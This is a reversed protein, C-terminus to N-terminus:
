LIINMFTKPDEIMFNLIGEFVPLLPNKSFTFTPKYTVSKGIGFVDYFEELELLKSSKPLNNDFIKNLKAFELKCSERFELYRLMLSFPDDDIHAKRIICNGLSDEICPKM